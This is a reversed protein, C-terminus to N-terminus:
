RMFWKYVKRLQYLESKSNPYRVKIDIRTSRSMVSKCNSFTEFGARGHYRGSGSQGVGGFPLDAPFLQSVTDNICISGTRVSQTFERISADDETFLYAALPAPASRLRALEARFDSYAIVPLIPGFIEERMPASQPDPNLLIAPKIKLEASDRQGGAYIECGDLMRCLREYHDRNVISGYNAASFEAAVGALRSAFDDFIDEHVLLYDPAVCTQGANMTKGWMIRRAALDLRADERVICPSKGGLELTTPVLNIAAAQAVLKGVRTSGTFFIHDFPQATLEAALNGDGQLVCVHDPEFAEACIREIAAATNPALESPKLVACNGAAVAAVLPSLALQLPYNWPSLILVAGLPECVVRSRGPWAAAPTRVRRPRMWRRLNRLAHDIDRLIYGIESSYAEIAPKGLDKSLADILEDERSAVAAALAKLRDARFALPLTAGTYFYERQRDIRYQM